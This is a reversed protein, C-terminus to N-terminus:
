NLVHLPYFWVKFGLPTKGLVIEPLIKYEIATLTTTGDFLEFKLMGRPYKPMPGEGEIELDGEDEGDEDTQGLRMRDERVVRIQDLQYASHGIETMAAIEVLIPPGALRTNAQPHDSQSINEPLGTGDVMSDSLDSQLLQLEVDILFKHSSDNAGPQSM